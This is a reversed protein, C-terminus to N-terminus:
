ATMFLVSMSSYAYVCNMQNTLQCSNEHRMALRIGPKATLDDAECCAKKWALQPTRSGIVGRDIRCLGPTLAGPAPRIGPGSGPHLYTCLVRPPHAFLLQKATLSFHYSCDLLGLFLHSGWVFLPLKIAVDRSKGM